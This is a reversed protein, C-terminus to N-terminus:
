DASQPLTRARASVIFVCVNALGRMGLKRAAGESLDILRRVRKNPGRDAIPIVISRGTRQDTVRVMTGFAPGWMAATPVAPHFPRGNAMTHGSERGYESALGCRASASAHSPWPTVVFCALALGRWAM